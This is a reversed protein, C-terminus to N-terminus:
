ASYSTPAGQRGRPAPRSRGPWAGTWASTRGAVAIAMALLLANSLTQLGIDAYTHVGYIPVFCAAAMAAARVTPDRAARCAGAALFVIVPMVCWTGILGLIGTFAFLAMLSNHPTYRYMEDFGGGFYAFYSSISVFQQGWGSGLVPHQVFTIALNLNEEHRALTSSDTTQGTTSGFARLPAFIAGSRGWGVAAYLAFIPLAIVLARNLRRRMRGRPLMLYMTLGGLVLEFWVVRRNNVKMALLLPLVACAALAWTSWRARSLAWAGLVVIAAAFLPSDDHSTMHPPYPEHGRVFVVFYYLALTARLVAAAVVTTGLAVLDRASGLAALLLAAVFLGLVLSSVQYYAWYASGGQVVGWLIGLVITGGCVLLAADMPWARNRFAGPRFFCIPAALLVLLNWAPQRVGPLSDFLPAFVSMFSRWTHNFLLPDGSREATLALFILVCLGRVLM